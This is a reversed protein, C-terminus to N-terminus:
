NQVGFNMIKEAVFVHMKEGINVSQFDNTKACSIFIHNTNRFEQPNPHGPPSVRVGIVMHPLPSGRVGIVM